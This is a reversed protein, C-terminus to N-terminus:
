WACSWFCAIIPGNEGLDILLASQDVAGPLRVIGRWPPTLCLGLKGVDKVQRVVPRVPRSGPSSALSFAFVTRLAARRLQVRSVVM